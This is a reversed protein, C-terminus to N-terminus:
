RALKADFLVSKISSLKFFEVDQLDRTSSRKSEKERPYDISLAEAKRWLMNTSMGQNDQNSQM